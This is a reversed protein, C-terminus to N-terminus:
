ILYLLSIKLHIILLVVEITNLYILHFLVRYRLKVICLKMIVLMEMRHHETSYIQHFVYLM